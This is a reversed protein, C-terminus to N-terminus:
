FWLLCSMLHPRTKIRGRKVPNAPHKPLRLVSHTVCHSEPEAEVQSWFVVKNNNSNSYKAWIHLKLCLDPMTKREAICLGRGSAASWDLPSWLGGSSPSNCVLEGEGRGPCREPRPQGPTPPGAGARQTRSPLCNQIGGAKGGAEKTCHANRSQEM